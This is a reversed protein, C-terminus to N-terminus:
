LTSEAVPIIGPCVVYEIGAEFDGKMEQKRIVLLSFLGRIPAGLQIYFSKKRDEKERAKDFMYMTRVVHFVKM